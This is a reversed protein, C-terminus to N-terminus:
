FNQSGEWEQLELSLKGWDAKGFNVLDEITLERDGISDGYYVQFVCIYESPFYALREPVPSNNIFYDHCANVCSQYVDDRKTTMFQDPDFSGDREARERIEQIATMTFQNKYEKAKDLCANGDAYSFMSVTSVLSILLNKM